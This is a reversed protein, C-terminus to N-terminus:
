RRFSLELYGYSADRGAFTSSVVAQGFARGFYAYASLRESLKASVSAEAVRALPRAGGSPIGSYGFVRENTAGGGAYWLDESRSLSLWHVEGRVLLLRHPKLLLQAFVDENNVLDYFPFQAYIRPTPMVQFFSDHDGDLPDGDGSSRNFGARLWPSWPARPLQIGAELAWAWGRHDQAGWRGTQGAGWVLADLTAAGVTAAFAGHAGFTEVRIPERDARRVPAPRNDVKLTEDRRDAYHLYFARLDVPTGEGLRKATLALGAVDVESLDPNAEIEYGGHTPHTAFGTLNWAPRDFSLRAGDFSRTVHTYGFPGVLREALRARKLWAQTPDAPVTELSDAQEFRGLTASFGSKRWTVHGQKLFVAGQSTEPTHAFYTAGPGLNGFPAQLSADDPLGFIETGQAELVVQLHPFTLRAGARLQLGV